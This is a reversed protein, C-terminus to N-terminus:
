IPSRDMLRFTTNPDCLQGSPRPLASGMNDSRVVLPKNRVHPFISATVQGLSFSHISGRWVYCASAAAVGHLRRPSIPGGLDSRTGRAAGGHRANRVHSIPYVTRGESRPHNQLAAASRRRVGDGQRTVIPDTAAPEEKMRRGGSVPLLM